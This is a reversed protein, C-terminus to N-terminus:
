IRRSQTVNEEQALDGSGEPTEDDMTLKSTRMLVEDAETNLAKMDNIIAYITDYTNAHRKEEEKLSYESNVNDSSDEETAVESDDSQTEQSDKSDIRYSCSEVNGKDSTFLSPPADVTTDSKVVTSAVEQINAYKLRVSSTDTDSLISLGQSDVREGPVQKRVGYKNLYEQLTSSRIYQKYEGDNGDPLNEKSPLSHSQKTQQQLSTADKPLVTEVSSSDVTSSGVGKGEAGGDKVEEESPESKPNLLTFVLGTLTLM